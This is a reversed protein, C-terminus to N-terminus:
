HANLAVFHYPGTDVHIHNMSAYTMIGSVWGEDRHATLWTVIEQKSHDKSPLFDIARGYAHQSLVGTGAITRKVCTGESIDVPGFQAEIHALLQKGSEHLCTWLPNAEQQRKAYAVAVLSKEILLAQEQEDSLGRPPPAPKPSEKEEEKRLTAVIKPATTAAKPAYTNPALAATRLSRRPEDNPTERQKPGPEYVNPSSSYAEHSFNGLVVPGGDNYAADVKQSFLLSSGGLTVGLAALVTLVRM